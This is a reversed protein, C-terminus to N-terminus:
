PHDNRQDRQENGRNQEVPAEHTPQAAPAAHSEERPQPAPAHEAPAAPAPQHQAQPPPAVVRHEEQQAPAEKPAPPAPAEHTAGSPEHIAPKESAPAPTPAQRPAQPAPAERPTPAPAPTERPSVPQRNERAAGSPEKVAPREPTTVNPERSQEPTASRERERQQEPTITQREGRQQEPTTAPREREPRETAGRLNARSRSQEFATAVPTPNFHRGTVRQVKAVDPGSNVRIRHQGGNFSRSESRFNNVVRTNHIITTNNVIVASPQIPDCFHGLGVFVFLSPAPVALNPGCPAWGIYNDSERWTVWAPSWETGPIWVWGYNPDDVWSGYHFTAWGFPEDSVWYWGVDTYEWHGYTYPRWGAMVQTPHFCRGYSPVNVWTGYPALPAYFDGVANINIGVGASVSVAAAHAPQLGLGACLVILVPWIRIKM